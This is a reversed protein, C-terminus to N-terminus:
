EDVCWSRPKGTPLEVFHLERGGSPCSRSSLMKRLAAEMEPVSGEGILLGFESEGLVKGLGLLLYRSRQLQHEM